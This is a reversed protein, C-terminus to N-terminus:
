TLRDGGFEINFGKEKCAAGPPDPACVCVQELLADAFPLLAGDSSQKQNCKM